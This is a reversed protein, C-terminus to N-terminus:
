EKCVFYEYEVVKLGAVHYCSPWSHRHMYVNGHVVAFIWHRCAVMLETKASIKDHALPKKYRKRLQLKSRDVYYKPMTKCNQGTLQATCTSSHIILVYKKNANMQMHLVGNAPTTSGALVM